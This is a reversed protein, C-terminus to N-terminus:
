ISERIAVCFVDVIYFDCRFINCEYPGGGGRFGMIIETAMKSNRAFCRDHQITLAQLRRPSRKRESLFCEIACQASANNFM